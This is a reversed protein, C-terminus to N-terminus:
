STTVAIHRGYQVLLSQDRAAVIRDAAAMVICTNVVGGVTRLAKIYGQVSTDLAQGLLLPRGQPKTPLKQM